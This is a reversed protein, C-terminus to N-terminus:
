TYDEGSYNKVIELLNTKIVNHLHYNYKIMESLQKPNYKCKDKLQIQKCLWSDMRKIGMELYCSFMKPYSNCYYPSMDRYINEMKNKGILEYKYTEIKEQVFQKHREEEDRDIIQQTLKEYEWSLKVM